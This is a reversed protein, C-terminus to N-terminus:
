RFIRCSYQASSRRLCSSLGRQWQAPDSGQLYNVEGALRQQATLTAEPNAGLFELALAHGGGKGDSFSLMAGKQTFFFGYGAGQAYYRVAEDASQGQNPVFSLPLKKYAERAERESMQPAAEPQSAPAGAGAQEHTSSSAASSSYHEANPAGSAALLAALAALLAVLLVGM